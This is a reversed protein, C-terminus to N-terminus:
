TLPEFDGARASRLEGGDRHGRDIGRPESQTREDAVEGVTLRPRLNTHIIINEMRHHPESCETVCHIDNIKDM